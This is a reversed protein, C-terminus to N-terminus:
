IAHEISLLPATPIQGGVGKQSGRLAHGQTLVYPTEHVNHIKVLRYVALLVTVSTQRPPPPLLLNSRSTSSSDAPVAITQYALNDVVM